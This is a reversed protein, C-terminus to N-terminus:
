LLGLEEARHVADWRKHVNLKGYINKLHSRVTSTAIFLEEAIEPNSMGTALLRLVEMERKSLPEILPQTAMTQSRPHLSTSATDEQAQAEGAAILKSTYEPSTGRSAAHRLLQVMPEGEDLFIRVYGGPEAISLAQGLAELAQALEGQAFLALARLNQVEIMRRSTHRGQEEILEVQSDLLALAQGPHGQKLLVRAALICEYRQMQLYPFVEEDLCSLDPFSTREERSGDSAAEQAQDLRFGREQLWRAAAPLEGQAVWLRVQHIAVLLDDLETLDFQVAIQRATHLAANAGQPDNQAQRLRALAIHGDLAAFAGWRQVLEIGERLYREATEFDNRERHVEGLGILPMGAVPLRRGHQDQALMLAQEFTDKAQSLHAQSMEMEALHSLASVAAMANGARQGIKALNELIQVGTDM